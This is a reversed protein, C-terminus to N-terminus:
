STLPNFLLSMKYCDFENRCTGIQGHSGCLPIFNRPSKIKLDDRYKPCGFSAYNVASNGALLHALTAGITGCFLCRGGYETRITNSADSHKGSSKPMANSFFYNQRGLDFTKM